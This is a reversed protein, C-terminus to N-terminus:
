IQWIDGSLKTKCEPCKSKGKKDFSMYTYKCNMCIRLLPTGQDAVRCTVWYYAKGNKYNKWKPADEKRIAIIGM